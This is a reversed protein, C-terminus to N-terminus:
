RRPTTFTYVAIAGPGKANIAQVQLVYRKGPVLNILLTAPKDLSTWKANNGLRV